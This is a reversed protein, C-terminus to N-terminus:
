DRHYMEVNYGKQRLAHATATAEARRAEDPLVVLIHAPSKPGPRIMGKDLLLGFLRTLGISVGIGPLKQNIYSGALDDYRGGGGISLGSLEADRFRVEIVTGTYYDLGRIIGLNAIVAGKPLHRLNDMVFSLEDLGQALMENEVGLARVKEAFSSDEARIGV